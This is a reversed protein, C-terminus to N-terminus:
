FIRSRSDLVDEVICNDATNILVEYLNADGLRTYSKFSSRDITINNISM